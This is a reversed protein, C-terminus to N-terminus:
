LYLRKNVEIMISTVQKKESSSLGVPLISGEYPFNIRFTFGNDEVKKIIVNLIRKDYNEDNLGICVDPFPGKKGILTAQEDSFSHLDQLTWIM